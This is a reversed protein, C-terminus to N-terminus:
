PPIQCGAVLQITEFLLKFFTVWFILLVSFINHTGIRHSCFKKQITLLLRCTWLLFNKNGKVKVKSRRIISQSQQNFILWTCTCTNSQFNIELSFKRLVNVEFFWFNIRSHFTQKSTTAEESSRFQTVHIELVSMSIIILGDWLAHSIQLRKKEIVYHIFM